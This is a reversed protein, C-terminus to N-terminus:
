RINNPIHTAYRSDEKSYRIYCILKKYRGYLSCETQGTYGKRCNLFTLKCFKTIKCKQCGTNNPAPKKKIQRLYLKLAQTKNITKHHHPYLERFIYICAMRRKSNGTKPKSETKLQIILTIKGMGYLGARPDV